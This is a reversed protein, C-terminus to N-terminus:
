RSPSRSTTKTKAATASPCPSSSETSRYRCSHYILIPYTCARTRHLLLPAGTRSDVQMPPVCAAGIAKLCARLKLFECLKCDQKRQPKKYEPVEFQHTAYTSWNPQCVTSTSTDHMLPVPQHRTGRSGNMGSALCVTYRRKRSNHSQISRDSCLNLAVRDSGVRRLCPM